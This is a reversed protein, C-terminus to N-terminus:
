KVSVLEINLLSGDINYICDISLGMPKPAKYTKDKKILQVTSSYYLHNNYKYPIRLLVDPTVMALIASIEEEGYVDKERYEFKNRIESECSEIMAKRDLVPADQENAYAFDHPFWITAFAVGLIWNKM